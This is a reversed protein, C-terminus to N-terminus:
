PAGAEKALYEVEKRVLRLVYRDTEERPRKLFATLYYSLREGCQDLAWQTILDLDREGIDLLATVGDRLCGMVNSRASGLMASRPAREAASVAPAAAAPAQEARPWRLAALAAAAAFLVVIAIVALQARAPKM